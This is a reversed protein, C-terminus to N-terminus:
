FLKKISEIQEDLTIYRTHQEMKKKYQMTLQLDSLLTKMGNFIGLESNDVIFGHIDVELLECAGPCYTTIVPVGLIIAEQIAIGFSESTSSCIFWDAMNMYKYPNYKLGLLKVNKLEKEEIFEKLLEEDKGEGIIWLEYLNNLEKLQHCVRLLRDYGKPEALRGVTVFLLKDKPKTIDEVREKSKEIIDQDNIPNYKVCLNEPDGVTNIISNMVAKSVCVVKDFRKMCDLESKGEFMAKTWHFINYDTHIWALKKPISLKSVFEMCPGEKFAIAIDFRQLRIYLKCLQNNIKRAIKNYIGAFSTNSKLLGRDIVLCNVNKNFYKYFEKDESPILITIEYEDSSLNNVIEILVKEVGGGYISDNMFLVKKM